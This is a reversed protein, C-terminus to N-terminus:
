RKVMNYANSRESGGSIVSRYVQYNELIRMVYNRTEHFPIMEIWNVMAYANSRDVPFRKLWSAPRGPGANYGAAVLAYAPGFRDILSDLYHTGLRINYQPEYFSSGKAGQM